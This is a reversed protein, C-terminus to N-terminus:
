YNLSDSFSFLFFDSFSFLLDVHYILLVLHIIIFSVPSFMSLFFMEWGVLRTHSLDKVNKIPKKRFPNWAHLVITNYMSQRLVQELVQREFLKFETCFLALPLREEITRIVEFRRVAINKYLRISGIWNACIIVSLYSIITLSLTVLTSLSDADHGLHVYGIAGIAAINLTLFFSNSQQLRGNLRDTLEVYMKYQELLDNRYNSGYKLEDTRFLDKENLIKVLDKSNDRMIFNGLKKLYKKLSM